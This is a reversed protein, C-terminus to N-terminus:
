YVEVFDNNVLDSLEDPLEVLEFTQLGTTSPNATPEAGLLLSLKGKPNKFAFVESPQGGVDIKPGNLKKLVDALHIRNQASRLRLIGNLGGGSSPDTELSRILAHGIEGAIRGSDGKIDGCVVTVGKVPAGNPVADEIIYIMLDQAEDVGGECDWLEAAAQDRYIFYEPGKPRIPKGESDLPAFAPGEEDADEVVFSPWRRKVIAYVVDVVDCRASTSFFLDTGGIKM